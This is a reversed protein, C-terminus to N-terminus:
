TKNVIITVSDSVSYYNPEGNFISSITMNDHSKKFTYDLISTGTSYSNVQIPIKFQYQLQNNNYFKITNYCKKQSSFVVGSITTTLSIKDKVFTINPKATLSITPTGKAVLVNKNLKSVLNNDNAIYKIELLRNNGAKLMTKSFKAIGYVIAVDFSWKNDFILSVKGSKIPNGQYDRVIIDILGKKAVVLKNMKVIDIFTRRQNVPDVFTSVKNFSPYTDADGLFTMVVDLTKHAMIFQHKYQGDSLLVNETHWIKGNEIFQIIARQNLNNIGTTIWYVIGTEGVSYGYGSKVNLSLRIYSINKTPTKQTSTISKFNSSNGNYTQNGSYQAYYSAILESVIKYNFIAIGDSGTVASGIFTGNSFYFSVIAGVISIGHSDTLKAELRVTDGINARIDDSVLVIITNTKEIQVNLQYFLDDFYYLAIIDNISNILIQYTDTVKFDFGSVLRNSQRLTINTVTLNDLNSGNSHKITYNLFLNNGLTIEPLYSINIYYYSGILDPDNITNDIFPDLSPNNPDVVWFYFNDELDCSGVSDIYITKNGTNNYFVSSYAKLSSGFGTNYITGGNTANNETFTCDTINVTGNKNYIAGGDKRILNETFTCDTINVHGNDNYIAGGYDARNETFICGILTTSGYNYITGGYPVRGNKITINLLTLKGNKKIDFIRGINQLNIVANQSQNSSQITITRNIEIYFDHSNNFEGTPNLNIVNVSTNDVANKISDGPNLTTPASSVTSISLLSFLILALIIIIKKNPKKMM